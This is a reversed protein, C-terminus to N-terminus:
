DLLEDIQLLPYMNKKTIRNLGQYDICLRFSGDKKMLFLVPASCPSISPRIFGKDLLEKLQKNLEAMEAPAMQYPAKTFPGPRVHPLYILAQFVDEFSNVMLIDKIEM